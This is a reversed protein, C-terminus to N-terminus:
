HMINRNSQDSGVIHQLCVELGSYQTVQQTPPGGRPLRGWGDPPGLDSIVAEEPDALSPLKRRIKCSTMSNKYVAVTSGAHSMLVDLSM